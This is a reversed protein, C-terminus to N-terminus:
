KVAELLKDAGHLMLDSLEVNKIWEYPIELSGLYGGLISGCIAAAGNSNGNQNAAMAIGKEFDNPHMLACYVAMALAEEAVWGEGIRPLAEESDIGSSALFVAKELASEVVESNKQKKLVARAAAVAEELPLGEFVYAMLCALYGASLFADSHGHTLAAVECSIKFAMKPDRFFYMGIPASRVVAGYGKSNNIRNKITGYKGNISGALAELISEGPTRRAFLEEWHFVEGDRLFEYKKDAFHGTQTFYWKQYAYFVCPVYGYIGKTKAKKDAWVLGDATFVTMQTDDSILAKGSAENIQLIKIGDKGYVKKIEELTLFEVPYGLADGIAGGLLCGRFYPKSDKM